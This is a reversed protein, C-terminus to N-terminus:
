TDPGRVRILLSIPVSRGSVAAGFPAIRLRAVPMAIGLSGCTFRYRNTM